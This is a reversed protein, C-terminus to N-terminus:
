RAINALLENQARDFEKSYELIPKCRIVIIVVIVIVINGNWFDDGM